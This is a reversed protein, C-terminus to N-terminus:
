SLRGHLIELRFPAIVKERARIEMVAKLRTTGTDEIRSLRCVSRSHKSSRRIFDWVKPLQENSRVFTRPVAVLPCKM